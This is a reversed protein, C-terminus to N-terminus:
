KSMKVMVLTQRPGRVQDIAKRSVLIESKEQPDYPRVGGRWMVSAKPCDGVGGGGGGV